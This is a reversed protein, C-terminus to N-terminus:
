YNIIFGVTLFSPSDQEFGGSTDGDVWHSHDGVGGVSGSWGHGHDGEYDTGSTYDGVIYRSTGGSGLAATAGQNKAFGGGGGPAHDHGGGGGVSGSVSHSHGGGGDSTQGFYHHHDISRSAEAKGDSGGVPASAGAGYPVRRRLDPVYFNNADPAGFATGIADYLRKYAVRSYAAGNCLLAGTPAAVGGFPIILGAPLLGLVGQGGGSGLLDSLGQVSSRALLIDSGELFSILWTKFQMPFAFPDSLLRTVVAREEDSLPKETGSQAAASAAEGFVDSM